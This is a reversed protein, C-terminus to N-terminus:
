NLSTQPALQVIWHILQPPTIIGAQITSDTSYEDTPSPTRIVDPVSIVNSIQIWLQCQPSHQAMIQEVSELPESKIDSESKVTDIAIYEGTPQVIHEQSLSPESPDIKQDPIYDLDFVTPTTGLFVTTDMPSVFTQLNIPVEVNHQNLETRTAHEIYMEPVNNNCHLIRAAQVDDLDIPAPPATINKRHLEGFLSDGLYLLRTECTEDLINISIGPKLAVTRWPHYLNYVITHRRFLVSLAYVTLEDPIAKKFRQKKFWTSFDMGKMGLCMHSARSFWNWNNVIETRMREKVEFKDMNSYSGFIAYICLPNLKLKKTGMFCKSTDLNLWNAIELKNFDEIPVAYEQKLCCVTEDYDIRRFLQVLEEAMTTKSETAPVAM